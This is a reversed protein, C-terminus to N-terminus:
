IDLKRHGIRRSAVHRDADISLGRLARKSERWARRASGHYRRMRVRRNAVALMRRAVGSDLTLRIPDPAPSRRELQLAMLLSDFRADLRGRPEPRSSPHSRM